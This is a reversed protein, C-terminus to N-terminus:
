QPRRTLLACKIYHDKEVETLRNESLCHNKDYRPCRPAFACTPSTNLDNQIIQIDKIKNEPDADPVSNLLLQTYPHLPKKFLEKAGSLEVINAKNMVAIKDSIHCVASLDHSIFIYSVRTEDKIEKLLNLIQAQISIDM